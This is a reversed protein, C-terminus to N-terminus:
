IAQRRVLRTGTKVLMLVPLKGKAAQIKRGQGTGTIASAAPTEKWMPIASTIPSLFKSLLVRQRLPQFGARGFMQRKFM